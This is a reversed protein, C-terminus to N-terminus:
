GTLDYAFDKRWDYEVAGVDVAGGLVRPNGYFDVLAEHAFQAPFLNLYANNGADLADCSGKVPTRAADLDCATLDDKMKCGDDWAAPTTSPKDNINIATYFSRYFRAPSITNIAGTQLVLTNYIRGNGATDRLSDSSDPGFTCNVVTRPQHIPYAGINGYSICTYMNCENAASSYWVARNNALLCRIMSVSGVGANVNAINNSIVCGILFTSAHASAVGYVAANAENTQSTNQWSSNYTRGGTFTINSVVCYPGLKLCRVANEGCGYSNTVQLGAPAPAGVVFTDAANESTSALNVGEPLIARNLTKDTGNTMVGEDYVGPLLYITEGARVATNTIADAITKKANSPHTGSNADSGNEADVYWNNSGAIIAEILVSTSPDGGVVTHSWGDPYDDWSYAVGNVTFGTSLRASDFGRRVTFTLSQGDAVFNTGINAGTVSLGGQPALIFAYQPFIELTGTGTDGDALKVWDGFSAALDAASYVGSALPTGGITASKAVLSVGDPIVVTGNESVTFATLRNGLTHSSTCILKGSGSVNLTGDGWGAGCRFEVSGATIDFTGKSDSLQNMFVLDDTNSKLIGAYGTVFLGNTHFDSSSQNVALTLQAPSASRLTAHSTANEAYCASGYQKFNIGKSQQDYGGLDYVTGSYPKWFAYPIGNEREAIYVGISTLCDWVGSSYSSDFYWTVGGGFFYYVDLRSSGSFRVTPNLYGTAVDTYGHKYSKYCSSLVSSNIFETHGKCYLTQMNNDVRWRLDADMVLTESTSESGFNIRTDFYIDVHNTIVGHTTIFKPSYATRNAATDAGDIHFFAPATNGGGLGYEHAIEVLSNTFSFHGPAVLGSNDAALRLTGAGAAVFEGPGSVPAALTLNATAKYAVVAGAGIMLSTVDSMISSVEDATTIEVFANDAIVVNGSRSGWSEGYLNGTFACACTCAISVLSEKMILRKM